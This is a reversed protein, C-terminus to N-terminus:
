ESSTIGDPFKTIEHFPEIFRVYLWEIVLRYNTCDLATVTELSHTANGHLLATPRHIPAKM